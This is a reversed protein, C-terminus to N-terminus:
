KGEGSTLNEFEFARKKRKAQREYKDKDYNFEKVLIWLVGAELLLMLWERIEIFTTYTFM